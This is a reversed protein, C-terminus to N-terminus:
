AAGQVQAEALHKDHEAEMEKETDSKEPVVEEADHAPQIWACFKEALATAEDATLTVKNVEAFRLARDLAWALFQRDYHKDASTQTM